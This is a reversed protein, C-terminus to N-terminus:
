LVNMGTMNRNLHKLESSVFTVRIGVLSLCIKSYIQYYFLNESRFQTKAAFESKIIGIDKCGLETSRLYNLSHM